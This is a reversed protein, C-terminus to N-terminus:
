GRMFRRRDKEDKKEKEKKEDARAKDVLSPNNRDADKIEINEWHYPNLQSFPKTKKLESKGPDETRQGIQAQTTKTGAINAMVSSQDTFQATIFALKERRKAIKEDPTLTDWVESEALRERAKDEKEGARKYKRATRKRGSFWGKKDKKAEAKLRKEETKKDAKKVEEELRKTKESRGALRKKEKEEEALIEKLKKKNKKEAKKAAKPSLNLEKTDKYGEDVIKKQYKDGVKAGEPLKDDKTYTAEETMVKGKDDKKYYSEQAPETEGLIYMGEDDKVGKNKLEERVKKKEKEKTETELRLTEQRNREELALQAKRQKDQEVYDIDAQKLASAHGSTGQITGLKAPSGKM